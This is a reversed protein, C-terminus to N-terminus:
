PSDTQPELGLLATYVTKATALDAVPHLVTRIAPRPAGADADSHASDRVRNRDCRVSVAVGSRREGYIEPM